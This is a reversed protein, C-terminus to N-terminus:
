GNRYWEVLKKIGEEFKVKPKYGLMQESKSTDAFTISVDGPQMEIHRKNAKKGLADEIVSIFYSLQIPNSNGLNFIEYEFDGDLAALVGDVIDSIYTYDRKSSGDGYVQIEEGNDILRTFKLPAMDPRGRPGYVTFFRLCSCKLGHLHHYTHCLLEGAKKTAAYPSIPNDVRDTEKFPGEKRDGYVSSSSASVFNKIGFRRSLELLNLLGKFNVEQYVFPDDISPRVGARAALNIIKDPSEVLFIKEMEAFNTIDSHFLRFKPNAINHKINEEKVKPDYYDNFNDVCVVSDGRALLADCVHSGIFGAGGTVLVKM